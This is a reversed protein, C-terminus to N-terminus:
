EEVVTVARTATATQNRQDTVVYDIAHISTTSTDLHFTFVDTQAGDLYVTIGLNLATAPGTVTAGLDSYTDGVRIMAPNAGNISLEPPTSTASSAITGMASTGGSAKSAAAQGIVALISKVQDETLCTSGICLKQIDIENGRARDFTLEKTTFKETMDGLRQAIEKVANVLAAILPRDQLSLFGSTSSGVAEPIATQVNQASFGAYQTTTDLGSTANWHHQIPNLQVIDALGRTFPADVNKLREDSSVSV